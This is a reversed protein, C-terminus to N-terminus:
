KGMISRERHHEPKGLRTIAAAAERPRSWHSCGSSVPFAQQQRPESGEGVAAALVHGLLLSSSVEPSSAPFCLQILCLRAGNNTNSNSRANNTNSYVVGANANANNNSRGLVRGIPDEVKNKRQLSVFLSQFPLSVIAAALGSSASFPSVSAGYVARVPVFPSPRPRSPAIRSFGCAGRAVPPCACPRGARTRRTM